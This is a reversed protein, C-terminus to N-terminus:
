GRKGQLKLMGCILNKEYRDLIVFYYYPIVLMLSIGGKLILGCWGLIHIWRDTLYFALIVPISKLFILLVNKWYEPINLEMKKWYYWNMFCIQGLFTGVATGLAAGAGQFKMALPISIIVNFVAIFIYMISRVGHKNHAQLVSIGLNQSLPILDPIMIVLAVFYSQEYGPGAWLAIFEKGLTIYGILVLSLILFQIRGVQLFLRSIEKKGDPQVVLKSIHPLFVSAVSTSFQVFYAEFVVGVGYIAVAASGCVKGLIVNDTSAYLQDVLINLLIYFSYVFVERYFSSSFRGFTIRIKINRFCFWINLMAALVTFCLSLIALSVSRFGVYLVVINLIHRSVNQILNLGNAFIFKEHSRIISSFVSAPFSIVTNVLLIIYIRKLIQIEQIGFSTSFFHELYGYLIIGAGMAVVAIASYFSLFMGYINSEKKGMARARATYRVLANGFGLDLISLYSILSNALTFVGYENQGLFRLVFPTYVLGLAVSMVMNIMSLSAGLKRNDSSNIQQKM